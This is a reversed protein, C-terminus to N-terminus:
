IVWGFSWSWCTATWFDRCCTEVRQTLDRWVILSLVVLNLLPILKFNLSLLFFLLEVRRVSQCLRKLLTHHFQVRNKLCCHATGPLGLVSHLRKYVIQHLFSFLLKGWRYGTLWLLCFLSRLLVKCIWQALVFPWLKGRKLLLHDLVPILLSIRQSVRESLRWSDLLLGFGFFMVPWYFCVFFRYFDLLLQHFHSLLLLLTSHTSTTWLLLKPIKRRISFHLPRLQAAM